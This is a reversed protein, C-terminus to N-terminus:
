SSGVVAVESDPNPKLRELLTAVLTEAEVRSPLPIIQTYLGELCGPKAGFQRTATTSRPAGTPDTSSDIIVKSSWVREKLVRWDNEGLEAPDLQMARVKRGENGLRWISARRALWGVAAAGPVGLIAWLRDLQFFQALLLPTTM